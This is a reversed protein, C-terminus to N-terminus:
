HRKRSLSASQPLIRLPDKKKQICLFPINLAHIQNVKKRQKKDTKRNIRKQTPYQFDYITRKFM